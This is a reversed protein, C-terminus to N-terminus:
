YATFSSFQLVFLLSCINFLLKHIHCVMKAGTVPMTTLNTVHVESSKAHVMKIENKTDERDEGLLDRITENYIELFSASFEYQLICIICSLLHKQRIYLLSPLDPEYTFISHIQLFNMVKFSYYM